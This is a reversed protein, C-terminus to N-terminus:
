SDFGTWQGKAYGLTLAAMTFMLRSLAAQDNSQIAELLDFEAREHFVLNLHGKKTNLLYTRDTAVVPNGSFSIGGGYFMPIGRYIMKDFGAKGTGTDNTIMQIAQLAQTLAEFHTQGLLGCTLKDMGRTTANIGKDLFRKVNSADVAGAGWDSASSTNYAQNQYWTADASARNIGGVTGTTPTKSVLLALGGLQLGGSGTGDSLIGEHFENMMSSELVDFKGAILDIFKTDSGGSNKYQEALTFSVSGLQYKWEFEAADLVPQDALSVQGAEGVWQVTGNQYAKNEEVVTRGGDVRYIGGVDKMMSLVPNNDTVSDKLVRSRHRGTTTVIQGLGVEAM